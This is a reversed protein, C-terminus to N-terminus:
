TEFFSITDSDGEDVKIIWIVINVESNTMLISTGYLYVLANHIKNFIAPWISVWKGKNKTYLTLFRKQAKVLLPFNFNLYSFLFSFLFLFLFWITSNCLKHISKRYRYLQAHSFLLINAFRCDACLDLTLFNCYM